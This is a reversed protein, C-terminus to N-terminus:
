NSTCGAFGSWADNIHRAIDEATKADGNLEAILEAASASPPPVAAAQVGGPRAFRPAPAGGSAAPPTAGSVSASGIQTTVLKLVATVDPQGSIARARTAIDVDSAFVQLKLPGTQLLEDAAELDGAAKTGVDRAAILTHADATSLAGGAILEAAAQTEESLAQRLNEANAGYQADVQWMGYSVDSTCDLSKAAGMYASIRTQPSLYSNVGAISAGGIGLALTLDKAGHFAGNAAAAIGLGLAPLDLALRQRMLTDSQNSYDNSMQCLKVAADKFSTFPLVISGTSAGCVNRMAHYPAPDLVSYTFGDTCGAALLPLGLALRWATHRYPARIPPHASSVIVLRGPIM